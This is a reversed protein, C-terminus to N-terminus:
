AHCKYVIANALSRSLKSASGTERMDDACESATTTTEDDY